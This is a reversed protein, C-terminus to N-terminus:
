KTAQPLGELLSLFSTKRVWRCGFPTDEGVPPFARTNKPLKIYDTCVRVGYDCKHSVDQGDFICQYSTEMSSYGENFVKTFHVRGYSATNAVKPVIPDPSNRLFLIYEWGLREGVYPGFYITEGVSAGKFSKVVEAKYVPVAYNETDGSLVKAVVVIDAHQFLGALPYVGPESITVGGGTIQAQSQQASTLHTSIGLLAFVLLLRMTTVM